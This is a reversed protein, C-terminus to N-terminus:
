ERSCTCISTPAFISGWIQPSKSFILGRIIVSLAGVSSVGLSVSVAGVRGEHGVNGPWQLVLGDEDHSCRLNRFSIGPPPTPRPTAAPTAPSLRPYCGLIAVPM